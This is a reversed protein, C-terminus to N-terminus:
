LLHINFNNFLYTEIKISPIIIFLNKKILNLTGLIRLLINCTLFDSHKHPVNIVKLIYKHKWTQYSFLRLYIM